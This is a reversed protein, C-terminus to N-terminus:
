RRLSEAARARHEATIHPTVARIAAFVAAADDTFGLGAVFDPILDVPMVFYAVAALLIAKARAPTRPDLACYWAAVLETAFPVRGATRRMKSWFETEGVPYLNLWAEAFVDGGMHRRRLM